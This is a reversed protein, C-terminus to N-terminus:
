TSRSVPPARSSNHSDFGKGSRANMASVVLESALPIATDKDGSKPQAIHPATLPPCCNGNLKSADRLQLPQDKQAHLRRLCCAHPPEASFAELSPQFIGLAVILLLLRAILRHMPSWAYRPPKPIQLQDCLVTRGVRLSKDDLQREVPRTLAGTGVHNTCSWNKLGFSLGLAWGRTSGAIEATNSEHSRESSFGHFHICAFVYPIDCQHAMPM